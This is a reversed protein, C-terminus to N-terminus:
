SQKKKSQLMAFVSGECLSTSELFRFTPFSSTPHTGSFKKQTLDWHFYAAMMAKGFRPKWFSAGKWPPGSGAIWLHAGNTKFCGVSVASDEWWFGVVEEILTGRNTANDILNDFSRNWDLWGFLYSGVSLLGVYNLPLWVEWPEWTNGHYFYMLGQNIVVHIGGGVQKGFFGEHEDFEIRIRRYLVWMSWILYIGAEFGWINVQWGDQLNPSTWLSFVPPKPVVCNYVSLLM